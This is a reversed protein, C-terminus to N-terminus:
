IWKYRNIPEPEAILHMHGGSREILGNIVGFGYSNSGYADKHCKYVSGSHGKFYYYEDDEDVSEVGSNLRWSDGTTYGGSWAGFVRYHPDTGTIQILMWKDPSYTTM